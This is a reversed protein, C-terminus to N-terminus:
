PSPPDLRDRRSDDLVDIDIDFDGLSFDALRRRRAVLSLSANVTETVGDTGLLARAEALLEDDINVTTRTVARM